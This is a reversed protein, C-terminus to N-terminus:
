RTQDEKHRLSISSAYVGLLTLLSVLDLGVAKLGYITRSTGLCLNTVYLSCMSPGGLCVTVKMDVVLVLYLSSAQMFACALLVILLDTSLKIIVLM